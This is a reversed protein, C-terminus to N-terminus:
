TKSTPIADRRLVHGVLYISESNYPAIPFIHIQDGNQIAFAALQKRVAEPDSTDNIEVSLMTRKEHAVLRQVEIHRLAAAPLIGGALDLVDVLTKENRLEYIAPRRVMGEVTVVPGLPPVMLSDGNEIRQLDGRMGHLLLDYADVEEILEKGRYHQLRRLSGRSTVGGAVFLANLPTSLASVDYAGPSDVDGVVYIRVSRLRLLAIDASVDRFQTRLTRQVLDQVDGLTRGSVLVPGVEPLAVRGERDVTRLLRQSVGGWLDISLDDGPGLVYSAGVPLDMPIYDPSSTGKRFVDLGFRELPRNTAGAQVYLDYLSPVDAYPNPQRFVRGEEPEVASEPASDHDAPYREPNRTTRLAGGAVSSMQISQSGAASQLDQQSAFPAASNAGNGFGATRSTRNLLPNPEIQLTTLMTDPTAPNVQDPRQNPSRPVPSPSNGAPQLPPSSHTAEGPTTSMAPLSERYSPVSPPLACDQDCEAYRNAASNEALTDRREAAREAARALLQAREQEVFKEEVGQDSDPNMRPVLYGYRQLLHTALVRARLDSRLREAVALDTLDSEEVIQGNAGADQALLRKLEVMLGVEKNVVELIQEASAAAKELNDSVLDAPRDPVSVSTQADARQTGQRAGQQSYAVSCCLLAGALYSVKKRLAKHDFMQIGVESGPM